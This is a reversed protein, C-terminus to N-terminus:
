IHKRLFVARTHNGGGVAVMEPSCSQICAHGGSFAHDSKAQAINLQRSTVGASSHAPRMVLKASIILDDGM